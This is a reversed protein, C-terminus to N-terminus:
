PFFVFIFSFSMEVRQLIALSTNISCGTNRSNSAGIFIHPLNDTQLLTPSTCPYNVSKSLSKSYPPKGGSAL